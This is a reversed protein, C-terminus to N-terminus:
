NSLGRHICHLAYAMDVVKMGLLTHLQMYEEEPLMRHQVPVTTAILCRYGCINHFICYSAIFHHVALLSIM